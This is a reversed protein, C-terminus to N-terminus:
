SEIDEGSEPSFSIREPMEEAKQKMEEQNEKVKRDAWEFFDEYALDGAGLQAEFEEKASEDKEFLLSFYEILIEEQTYVDWLPDKWLRNTKHCLYFKAFNVMDEFSMKDGPPTQSRCYARYKLAFLPDPAKKKPKEQSM